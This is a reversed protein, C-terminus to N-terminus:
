PQVEELEPLARDLLGVIESPLYERPEDYGITATEPIVEEGDATKISVIVTNHLGWVHSKCRYGAAQLVDVVAQTEVLGAGDDFGFKDFADEWRWHLKAGCNKCITTSM